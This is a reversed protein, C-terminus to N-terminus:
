RSFEFFYHSTYMRNSKKDKALYHAGEKFEREKGVCGVFGNRQLNVSGEFM